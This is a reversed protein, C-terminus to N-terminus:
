WRAKLLLAGGFVLSTFALNRNFGYKDRFSDLRKILKEDSRVQSCYRVAMFLDEAKLGAALDKVRKRAAPPLPKYFGPFILRGLRPPKDRLLNITPRKLIKDVIVDELLFKAPTAIAQGAVYVGLILLAIEVAKLDKGLVQPFGFVLEMGVVALLGAPIYGFFDYPDFPLRDM